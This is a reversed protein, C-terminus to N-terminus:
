RFEIRPGKADAATPARYDSDVSEVRQQGDLGYVRVASEGFQRARNNAAERAEALTPHATLATVDGEYRVVWHHRSLPHIEIRHGTM